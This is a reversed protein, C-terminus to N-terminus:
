LSNKNINEPISFKVLNPDIQLKIWNKNPDISLIWHLNKNIQYQQSLQTFKWIDEFKNNIQIGAFIILLLTLVIIIKLIIDISKKM